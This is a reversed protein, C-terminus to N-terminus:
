LGTPQNKDQPTRKNIQPVVSCQFRRHALFDPFIQFNIGRFHCKSKQSKLPNSLWFHFSDIVIVPLLKNTATVKTHINTGFPQNLLLIALIKIVYAVSKNKSSRMWKISFVHKSPCGDDDTRNRIIVKCPFAGRYKQWFYLVLDSTCLRLM